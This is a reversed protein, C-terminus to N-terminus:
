TNDSEIGDIHYSQRDQKHSMIHVRSWQQLNHVDSQVMACFPLLSKKNVYEDVQWRVKGSLIIYYDEFLQDIHLTAVEVIPALDLTVV